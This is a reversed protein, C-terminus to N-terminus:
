LCSQEDLMVNFFHCQLFCDRSALDVVFLLFFDIAIEANRRCSSTSTACTMVAVHLTDFLPAKAGADHVLSTIWHLVEGADVVILTLLSAM